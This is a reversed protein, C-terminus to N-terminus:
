ELWRGGPLHRASQLPGRYVYAWPQLRTGDELGVAVRVREYEHPTLSGPIIGEYADLWSLTREPSILELVEGHVTEGAAGPVVMGPYRGLHYLRGETRAAGRLRTERALQERQLTGMPGTDSRLLTGYVFLLDSEQSM